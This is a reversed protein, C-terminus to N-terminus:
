LILKLFNFLFNRITLKLLKAALNSHDLIVTSNINLFPPIKFKYIIPVINANHEYTKVRITYNKKKKLKEYVPLLYYYTRFHM